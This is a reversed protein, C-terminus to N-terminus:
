ESECEEVLFGVVEVEFWYYFDRDEVEGELEDCKLVVWGVAVVFFLVWIGVGEEGILVGFYGKEGEGILVYEVM